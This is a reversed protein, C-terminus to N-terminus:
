LNKKRATVILNYSFTLFFPITSLLNDLKKIQHPPTRKFVHWIASIYALGILRIDSFGEDMFLQYLTKPSFGLPKEAEIPSRLDAAFDGTKCAFKFLNRIIPLDLIFRFKFLYETPEPGFIINGDPKLVRYMETISRKPKPLHHLASCGFVVEFINDKFPLYEADGVLFLTETKKIKANKTAIKIAELSIDLGIVNAKAEAVILNTVDGTGCCLELCKKGQFIKIYKSPLKIAEEHLSGGKHYFINWSKKEDKKLESM